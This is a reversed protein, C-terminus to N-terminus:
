LSLLHNGAILRRTSYTIYPLIKWLYIICFAEVLQVTQRKLILCNINHDCIQAQMIEKFRICLFYQIIYAPYKSGAPVQDQPHIGYIINQVSCTLSRLYLMMYELHFPLGYLPKKVFLIYPTEELIKSYFIQFFLDHGSVFQFFAQIPHTNFFFLFSLSCIKFNQPNSSVYFEDSGLGSDSLLNDRFLSDKIYNAFPEAPDIFLDKDAFKALIDLLFPYHTCGLVIKDPNNKMMNDLDSKIIKINEYNNMSNEEVIHVWSPCYQGFVNINQNYSKIKKQYSESEITARTAFIGLNNVNMASLIKSVSHVISFLKFNYKDKVVDYVVSSTTNCAMVVAKCGRQEFFKFIDGSYELLQDKTKEGYPMHATDGYYIYDENPLIKKLEKLVTLGGVGSDFLGIPSNNNINNKLITM